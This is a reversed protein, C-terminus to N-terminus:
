LGTPPRTRSRRRRACGTRRRTATSAHAEVYGALAAGFCPSGPGSRSCPSRRRGWIPVLPRYQLGAAACHVVVADRATTVEGGTLVLRGRDAGRVHGAPRRPRDDPAPRAGVPRADAGQGDDADRVPRHAADRRRGGDPPVPRRAVRRPRPRWSTPRWGSSSRRTPSCWRVTSCGRARTAAGLLDRGPRCRQAAALHVRRDRDQGRRRDRVALASGRDQRPRQRRRRACRGRRAFPPPTRAPIEPSLYRADVVRRRVRVETREGSVSRSSGATASTTAARTSRCAAPASWASRSCARTTPASRRLPRGSTCAPRPARRSSAGAASCPRPWATSPRPRTCGSSRTPTWGTGM